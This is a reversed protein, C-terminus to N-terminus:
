APQIAVAAMQSGSATGSFTSTVSEGPTSAKSGHIGRMDTSSNSNYDETINSLSGTGSGNNCFAFLAAGSAPITITASTTGTSTSSATQSAETARCVVITAALGTGSFTLVVNGSTSASISSGSGADVVWVEANRVAAAGQARVLRTASAGGVTVTDLTRTSSFHDYAISIFLLRNAATAGFSM